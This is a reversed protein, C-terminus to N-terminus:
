SDTDRFEKCVQRRILIYLGAIATCAFVLASWRHLHFLFWQGETGFLPFMSVIASLTLPLSLIALVWFVAKTGIPRDTLWCGTKCSCRTRLGQLITQGDQRDFAMAHAWGLVLIAACAIFVGAFTAHIMLLYGELRYGLLLPGFGTALLILFCALAALLVLKKVRGFFNLSQPLFLMTFLHVKKRILTGPAFRSEYGCPFILHHLLLSGITVGFAALSIWQFM